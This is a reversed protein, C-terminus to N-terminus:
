ARRRHTKTTEKCALIKDIRRGDVTIEGGTPEEFGALMMLATTKGSGSEGIIGFTEGAQVDFSM